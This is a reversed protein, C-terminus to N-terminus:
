AARPSTHPAAPSLMPLAAISRHQSAPFPTCRWEPLCRWQRPAPLVAIGRCLVSDHCHQSAAIGRHRSHRVAGSRCADGNDRHRCDRSAVACCQITAISRHQSAPFPSCRWEPLCRWQRPTPLVAIVRCLVSYHCHQSAAIGPIACMAVGAPMAVTATGAIGRHCPVASLLPLAAISRHRSHRVAGSRCADGNDRLWCYRSSVACSRTTAISRHRSHQSHRV